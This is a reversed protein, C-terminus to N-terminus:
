VQRTTFQVFFENQKVELIELNELEFIGTYTGVRDTISVPVGSTADALLLTLLESGSYPMSQGNRLQVPTKGDAGTCDIVYQANRFKTLTPAARVYIRKLVPGLTSTSKNLTVKISAGRGFVNGSFLYETGSVAGTQLTTYSGQVDDIQYSIDVSGGDGDTAATWDVIVGRFLKTLSSDFDVISTQIYGATAPSTGFLLWGQTSAQTLLVFKSSTNLWVNASPTFAGVSSVGGISLDYFRVVSNVFDTFILGNGFPTIDCGNSTSSTYSGNAWARGITGNAYYWLATRMGQGVKGEAGIIFVIGSQVTINKANFNPPYEALKSVGVGDYQWLETGNTSGSTRMIMVKGGFAVLKMQGALVTGTADKWVFSSLANGGTDIVYFTGGSCGYLTNNLFVLDDMPTSCFDSFAHSSINYKRTKSCGNGSLYLNVGDTAFATVAAGCSHTSRDTISGASSVEYLNTSSSTYTQSGGPNAGAGSCAAAFTLSVEASQITVQGPVSVDINSGLWFQRVKDEDSTKYYKQDEGLSWDRQTATLWFDQQNDGFDGSVNQREIFTPTFGYQARQTRFPLNQDITNAFIYGNSGIVLDYVAPVDAATAM